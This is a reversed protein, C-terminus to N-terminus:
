LLQYVTTVNAQVEQSGPQIPAASTPSGLSFTNQVPVVSPSGDNISCLLGLKKGAAQAMAKAEASAQAVASARAKSFLTSTNEVSFSFRDISVSNGGAKVSDDILKGASQLNHIRMTLTNTAQYSTIKAGPKTRIPSLSIGTTQLDSQAVGDTKLQDILKTTSNSNTSLALAATSDQSHVSLQITLLDPTGQATGRGHSTITPGSKCSTTSSAASSNTTGCASLLIGVVTLASGAKLLQQLVM